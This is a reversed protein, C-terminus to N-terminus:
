LNLMELLCVQTDGSFKFRSVLSIETGLGSFSCVSPFLFALQFPSRRGLLHDLTRSGGLTLVPLPHHVRSDARLLIIHLVLRPKLTFGNDGDNFFIM